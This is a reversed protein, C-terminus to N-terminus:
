IITLSTCCLTKSWHFLKFFECIASIEVTLLTSIEIESNRKLFRYGPLLNLYFNINSLMFKLLSRFELSWSGRCYFIIINIECYFYVIGKKYIFTFLPKEHKQLKASWHFGEIQELDQRKILSYWCLDNWINKM